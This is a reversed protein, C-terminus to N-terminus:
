RRDTRRDDAAAEGREPQQDEGARRERHDAVLDGLEALFSVLAVRDSRLGALLGLLRRPREPLPEPLREPEEVVVGVVPDENGLSVLGGLRDLEVVVGLLLELLLRGRALGRLPM